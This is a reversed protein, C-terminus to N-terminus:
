LTGTKLVSKQCIFLWTLHAKLSSKAQHPCEYNCHPTPYYPPLQRSIIPFFQYKLHLPFIPLIATWAQSSRLFSFIHDCHGPTPRLTHSPPSPCKMSSFSLSLRLAPCPVILSMAILADCFQVTVHRTHSGLQPILLFQAMVQLGDFAM